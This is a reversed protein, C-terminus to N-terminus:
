SESKSGTLYAVNEARQPHRGPNCAPMSPEPPTPLTPRLAPLQQAAKEDHAIGSNLLGTSTLQEQPWSAEDFVTGEPAGTESSAKQRPAANCPPWPKSRDADSLGLLSCRAAPLASAQGLQPASGLGLSSTCQASSPAPDDRTGNDERRCSGATTGQL